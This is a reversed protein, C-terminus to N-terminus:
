IEVLLERGILIHDTKHERSIHHSRKKHAGEASEHDIREVALTHEYDAEEKEKDTKRAIHSGACQQHEGDHACKM